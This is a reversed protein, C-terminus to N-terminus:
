LPEGNIIDRNFALADQAVLALAYPNCCTTDTGVFPMKGALVISRWLFLVSISAAPGLASNETRMPSLPM